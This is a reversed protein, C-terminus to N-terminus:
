VYSGVCMHVHRNAYMGFFNNHTLMLIELVFQKLCMCDGGAGEELCLSGCRHLRGAVLASAAWGGVLRQRAFMGKSAECVQPLFGM